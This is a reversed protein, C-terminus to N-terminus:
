NKSFIENLTRINSGIIDNLNHNTVRIRHLKFGHKIALEDKKRDNYVAGASSHWAIGDIEFLHNEYRGDYYKTEIKYQRQIKVNYMRELRKLIMNEIMSTKIM